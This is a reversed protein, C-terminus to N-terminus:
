LCKNVLLSLVTPGLIVLLVLEPMSLGAVHQVSWLPIKLTQRQHAQLEPSACSESRKPERLEGGRM